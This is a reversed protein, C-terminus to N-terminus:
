TRPVFYRFENGGTPIYIICIFSCKYTNNDGGGCDLSFCYYGSYETWCSFQDPTYNPYLEKLEQWAAKHSTVASDTKRTMSPFYNIRDSVVDILLCRLQKKKSSKENVGECNVKKLEKFTLSNSAQGITALPSIMLLLLIYICNRM